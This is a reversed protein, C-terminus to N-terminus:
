IIFIRRARSIRGGWAAMSHGSTQEGSNSSATRITATFVSFRGKSAQDKFQNYSPSYNESSSISRGKSACYRSFGSEINSYKTSGYDIGNSSHDVTTSTYSWIEEYQSYDSGDILYNSFSSWNPCPLAAAINYLASVACAYKGRKSTITEETLGTLGGVRPGYCIDRKTYGADFFPVMLNSWDTVPKSRSVTKPLTVSKGSNLSLESNDDPISGFELSNFKFLRPHTSFTNIPRSNSSAITLSYLGTSGKEFTFRSVLSPCTVDFLVYGHPAGAVYYDVEYGIITNDVSFLPIPDGTSLSLDPNM